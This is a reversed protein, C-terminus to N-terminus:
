AGCYHVNGDVLSPYRHGIVLEHVEVREVLALLHGDAVARQVSGVQM